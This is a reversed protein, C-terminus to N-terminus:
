VGVHDIFHIGRIGMLYESWYIRELAAICLEIFISYKKGTATWRDMLSDYLICGFARARVSTGDPILLVGRDSTEFRELADRRPECTGDTFLLFPPGAPAAM